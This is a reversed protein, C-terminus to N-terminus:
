ARRRKSPRAWTLVFVALFVFLRVVPTVGTTFRDGTSTSGQTQHIAFVHIAGPDVNFVITDLGKVAAIQANLGTVNGTLSWATTTSAVVTYTYVAGQALAFLLVFSLVRM